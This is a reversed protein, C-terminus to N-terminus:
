PTSEGVFELFSLIIEFNKGSGVKHGYSCPLLPIHWCSILFGAKVVVRRVDHHEILSCVELRSKLHITLEVSLLLSSGSPIFRSLEMTETYMESTNESHVGQMDPTSVSSCDSSDTTQELITARARSGGWKEGYGNLIFCTSQDFPNRFMSRRNSRYHLRLQQVHDVQNSGFPKGFMTWCM